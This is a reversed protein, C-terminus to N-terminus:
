GHNWLGEDLFQEIADIDDIHHVLAHRQFLRAGVVRGAARKM